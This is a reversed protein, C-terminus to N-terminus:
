FYYIDIGAEGCSMVLFFYKDKKKKKLFQLLLSSPTMSREKLFFSWHSFCKTDQPHSSIEFGAIDCKM